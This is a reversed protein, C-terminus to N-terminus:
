LVVGGGAAYGPLNGPVPVGQTYLVSNSGVAYQVGSVASQSAASPGWYCLSLSKVLLCAASFACNSILMTHGQQGAWVSKGDIDMLALMAGLGLVEIYGSAYLNGAGVNFPTLSPNAVLSQFRCNIIQVTSRAVAIFNTYVGTTVGQVTIGEVYAYNCDSFTLGYGNGGLPGVKTKIRYATRNNVDGTIVIQTAVNNILAAEYDGPIGLRLHVNFGPSQAYRSGIARWAGQITRFAKEPTNATGDGTDDDGDPRIWGDITGGIQAVQSRVLGVHYFAGNWYSILTPVGERIDLAKLQAKDNRLIPVLGRDNVNVRVSGQNDLRPVVILTLHDNYRTLQPDLTLVYDNPGYEMTGSIPLGRQILYRVSLQLQDLLKCDYVVEGKNVLNILEALVANAAAPDFRPECRSTSYWLEDCNQTSPDSLSNRAETWPVGSDPFMATM